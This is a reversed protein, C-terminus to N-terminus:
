YTSNQDTQPMRNKFIAKRGHERWITSQKRPKYHTAIKVFAKTETSEKFETEERAM